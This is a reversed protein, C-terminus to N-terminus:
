VTVVACWQCFKARFWFWWFQVACLSVALSLWCQALWTQKEQKSGRSNDLSFLVFACTSDRGHNHVLPPMHALRRSANLNVRVHKSGAEGLVDVHWGSCWRGLRRPLSAGILPHRLATQWSSPRTKMTISQRLPSWWSLRDVVRCVDCPLCVQRSALQELVLLASGSM